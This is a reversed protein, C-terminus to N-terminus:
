AEVALAQAAEVDRRVQHVDRLLPLRLRAHVSPQRDAGLRAGPAHPRAVSPTDSRGCRGHPTSPARSARTTAAGSHPRSTRITSRRTTSRSATSWRMSVRSGTARTSRWWGRATTRAWSSPSTRRRRPSTRSRKALGRAVPLDGRTMYYGFLGGLVPLAEPVLDMGARKCLEHARAYTREVEPTTWSRAILAAGLITHVVLEQRIREATEPMTQLLELARHAHDASERHAHQRLANDAAQTRYRVARELDRGEEFHMALEGAIEAARAGHAQELRAGIRLHLGVRHGISVRAYLVNRYVAHVFAYRGAVTGDPWESAGAARVFQGRHALATYCADAV